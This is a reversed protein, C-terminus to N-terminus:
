EWYTDGESRMRNEDGPLAAKGPRSQCAKKGAGSTAPLRRCSLGALRAAARATSSNQLPHLLLSLGATGDLSCAAGKTVGRERPM